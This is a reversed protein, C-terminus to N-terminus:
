DPGICPGILDKLVFDFCAYLVLSWTMVPVYLLSITLLRYRLNEGEDDIHAAM